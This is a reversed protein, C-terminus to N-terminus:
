VAYPGGSNLVVGLPNIRYKKVEKAFDKFTDKQISLPSAMLIAADSHQALILPDFCDENVESLACTDLLILDYKQSVSDVFPKIAFDACDYPAPAAYPVPASNKETYVDSSPLEPLSEPTRTTIIDICGLERNDPGSEVVGHCYFSDDRSQSVTDMILIRRKLLTLYGIALASIFLTKGETPFQSLVVISKISQEKQAVMIRNILRKCESKRIYNLLENRAKDRDFAPSTKKEAFRLKM